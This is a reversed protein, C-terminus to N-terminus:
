QATVLSLSVLSNMSGSTFRAQMAEQEATRCYVVIILDNSEYDNQYFAAGGVSTIGSSHNEDGFTISAVDTYRPIFAFAYDGIIRVSSSFKLELSGDSNGFCNNFAYGRIYQLASANSWDSTILSTCGTFAYTEIADLNSPVDIWELSTCNYFCYSNILTIENGKEFFVAKVPQANAGSSDSFGSITKVTIGNIQKPITIKGRLEVGEAPTLVGRNTISFYKADTTKAYVSQSKYVAYFSMDQTSKINELEVVTSSSKDRTFGQFAYTQEMPLEDEKTSMPMISPEALYEGYTINATTLVTEGDDNYFTMTYKHKEYIIYFVYDMVGSTFTQKDWDATAVVDAQSGQVTSWGYFDYHDKQTMDAYTTYPNDFWTKTASEEVSIKQVGVVTLSGDDETKVFKASYAKTINKVFINLNPYLTTLFTNKLYSEDIAEENNIYINGTIEPIVNNIDDCNTYHSDAAIKELMELSTILQSDSELEDNKIYLEGNLVQQTWTDENYTYPELQYHGNDIYYHDAEDSNYVYGKDM